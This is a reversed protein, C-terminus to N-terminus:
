PGLMAVLTTMVWDTGTPTLTTEVVTEWPMEEKLPTLRTQSIPVRRWPPQAVMAMTTVVVLIPLRAEVALTTEGTESGLWALLETVTRPCTEVGKTLITEPPAVKVESLKEGGFPAM